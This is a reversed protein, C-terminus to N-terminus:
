IKHGFTPDSHVKRTLVVHTAAPTAVHEAVEYGLGPLDLNHFLSEGSGLLVPAFAIHLEDILRARLYQQVTAVGGGVRVNKGGAAERARRLADEIGSTVFNFTTGGQMSFSKRPHHTLVFVDCRYPPEEGWWGRWSEDPWAGRVPGFMKRGIIWAGVNEVGRRAFEDDAGTSGGEGGHLARFTRTEFAWRHLAMGGVGLPNELSQNPGAGYGDLSVTFSNVIVKGM